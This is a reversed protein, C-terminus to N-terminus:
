ASAPPESPQGTFIRGWREITTRFALNPDEPDRLATFLDTMADVVGNRVINQPNGTLNTLKPGAQKLHAAMNEPTNLPAALYRDDRGAFILAAADFLAHIKATDGDNKGIDELLGALVSCV